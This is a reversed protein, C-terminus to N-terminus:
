EGHLFRVAVETGAALETVDEPVEILCDSVALASLLHSGPGGVPTVVRGSEPDYAGRRFQTRGAPSTIPASLRAAATPREVRSFGMAARLAPRIFVEFSVQASVPNGPLTAVAVGQYRGAGQPGGPQMAVKTFEVGRGTFADKVVEYAGASVGGSTLLLDVSALRPAIAAHFQEVDDPVFRLLEAEGGAERVAAALMVGNSEYIQGPELAVGPGVLESGTSLVLVRPRRRVPLTGFGLAAALGLQAPGLPVGARLVTTGVAVDDAMRRVNQGVAVPRDVRVVATGGDTWEVQVVADAGVPVPAGTMIRHATGAALPGSATRGAPIDEVVPLEVPVSAVDAARVAYGDMASNDFPPLPVTAVLDEALVLGLCDAVPSEVVPMAGVLGAVRAKHDAVRTLTNSVHVM